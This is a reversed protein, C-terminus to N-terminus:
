ESGMEYKEKALSHPWPGQFGQSELWVRKAKFVCDEAKNLLEVMKYGADDTLPLESVQYCLSKLESQITEGNLITKLKCAQGGM